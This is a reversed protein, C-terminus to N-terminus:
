SAVFLLSCNSEELVAAAVEGFSLTSGPRRSVGRVILNQKGRQAHELIAKAASLHTKVATRVRVGNQDALKVIDKLVAEQERRRAGLIALPTARKSQASVHLFTLPARTARALAVAVEAGSRSVASGTIPVLINLAAHAADAALVGLAAVVAIPGDFGAAIRSVNEHFGGAAGRLPDRGIVLLDYGRNAERAVAEASLVKQRRTTVDVAPPRSESSARAGPRGKKAAGKLTDEARGSPVDVHEELVTVPMGRTGAVLGALRAALTGNAGDDVAVLLRELNPVFERKEMDEKELRAKEQPMLPVRNLSWRLTPPM